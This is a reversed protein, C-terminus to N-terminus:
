YEWNVNLKQTAASAIIYKNTLDLRPGDLPGWSMTGSAALKAGMDTASLSADGTGVTGTNTSDAQYSLSRVRNGPIGAATTHGASVGTTDKGTLVDYLNHRNTDTITITTAPM